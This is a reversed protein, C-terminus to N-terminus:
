ASEKSTPSTAAGREALEVAAELYSLAGSSNPDYTMVTQGHSPAESIRVSRPVSARLTQDPFHERVEDAVQSSLRTRGDYMTLLITSVHLQPNLHNRILEINKLLQSLGELAYYECQIPIFVETAAVFANVTLLGLSPPCDILVYDLREGAADRSTSTPRSPRRWAPRAPSSRSWSSRPVPWTSPPPSASCTPIDPCEQVVEAVPKGEVLVDYVSPVEAHHEIGLATSANGQPDLDIVLVTSGAQALAAAVNVTTTTKGVGGKQNAVTMVRTHAPRPVTRGSLTIRKRADAAVAAALPTQADAGPMAAAIQARVETDDHTTADM